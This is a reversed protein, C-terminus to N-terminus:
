GLKAVLVLVLLLGNDAIAFELDLGLVGLDRRRVHPDCSHSAKPSMKSGEGIGPKLPFIKRKVSVQNQAEKGGVGKVGNQSEVELIALPTAGITKRPNGIVGVEACVQEARLCDSGGVERLRVLSATLFLTETAVEVLTAALTGWATERV